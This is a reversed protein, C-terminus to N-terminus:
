LTKMLSDNKEKNNNLPNPVIDFVRERFSAKAIQRRTNNLTEAERVLYWATADAV